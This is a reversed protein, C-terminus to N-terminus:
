LRRLMVRVEFNPEQLSPNPNWANGSGSPFSGKKVNAAHGDMFLWNTTSNANNGHRLNINNFNGYTYIDHGDAVIGVYSAGEVATEKAYTIGAAADVYRGPYLNGLKVMPDVWVFPGQNGSVWPDLGSVLYNCRYANGKSDYEIQYSQSVIDTQSNPNDWENASRDLGSPCIFPSSHANGNSTMGLSGMYGWESFEPFWLLVKKTTSDTWAYPMITQQFDASYEAYAQGIAHLNSLCRAQKAQNRAGALSPLLIAILLSIIAVVVLLEILTFGSKNSLRPM